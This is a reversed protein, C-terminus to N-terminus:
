QRATILGGFPSWIGADYRELEEDRLPYRDTPSDQVVIGPLLFPNHADHLHIAAQMVNARTPNPGAMKLTQIMTNAVAMGYLYNGDAPNAGPSYKALIQKYLVIAPDKAWLPDSPDKLYVASIVGNTAAAGGAHTAAQMIVPSNSVSNLYITPKWGLQAIEVMAQISFKPTAFIFVTDAGSSKLSAIQSEVDPDTVEYSVSKVIQSTKPGLADTLGKLYDQGYDDNQYLVGIKANPEHQLLYKTFIKSEDQYNPQWGITWPYKQADQGFMTAGTAVFLQPIGRQNLYPRIVANPATGLSDFIAFVHDQEVLQRVDQLTRPPDYGDDLDKYVIKRGYVGGRDDIYAFYALIGKGISSYASAPGSYPHTGGLLIETPTVGPVTQAGAQHLPMSAAALAAVLAAGFWTTAKSM